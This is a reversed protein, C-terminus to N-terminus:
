NILLTHLCHFQSHNRKQQSEKGTYPANHRLILATIIRFLPHLQTGFPHCQVHGLTIAQVLLLHLFQRLRVQLPQLLLTIHRSPALIGTRGTPVPPPIMTPINAPTTTTTGRTRSIIATPITTGHAMMHGITRIVSLLTAGLQGLLFPLLTLGFALLLHFFPAIGAISILLTELLNHRLLLILCVALASTSSTAQTLRPQAM